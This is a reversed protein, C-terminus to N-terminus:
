KVGILSKQLTFNAKAYKWSFWILEIVQEKFLDPHKERFSINFPSHAIKNRLALVIYLVKIITDASKVKHFNRKNIEQTISVLDKEQNLIERNNKNKFESYWTAEKYFSKLVELLGDDKVDILSKQLIIRLFGEFAMTLSILNQIIGFYSQSGWYFRNIELFISGMSNEDCFELFEDVEEETISYNQYKITKGVIDKLSRFANDKASAIEGRLVYELPRSTYHERVKKIIRVLNLTSVGFGDEVLKCLAEIDKKLMVVLKSLHDEEYVFYRSCLVKIFDIVMQLNLSYKKITLKAIRVERNLEFEQIFKYERNHYELWMHFPVQNCHYISSVYFSLMDFLNQQESFYELQYHKRSITYRYFKKPNLGTEFIERTCEEKFINLLYQQSCAKTIEYLHYAQWHQYYNNQSKILEPYRKNSLKFNWKIFESERPIQLFKYDYKNKDLINFVNLSNTEDEILNIFSNIKVWKHPVESALYNRKKYIHTAYKKSFVIRYFPFLLEEKELYELWDEEIRWDLPKIELNICLELFNKTELLRKGYSPISM